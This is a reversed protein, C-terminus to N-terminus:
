NHSGFPPVKRFRISGDVELLLMEGVGGRITCPDFIDFNPKLRNLAANEKKHAIPQRPIIEPLGLM